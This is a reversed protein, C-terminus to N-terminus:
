KNMFLFSTSNESITGQSTPDWFLDFDLKRHEYIKLTM